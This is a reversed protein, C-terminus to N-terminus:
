QYFRKIHRKYYKVTADFENKDSKKIHKTKYIDWKYLELDDDLDIYTDGEVVTDIHTIICEDILKLHAFQKIINAGGILYAEETEIERLYELVHQISTFVSINEDGELSNSIVIHERGPLIVPLSECTRAGMIIPMGITTEKFHKLDDSLKWPLKNDIGMCGEKDVAIILKIIM